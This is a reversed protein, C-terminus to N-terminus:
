ENAADGHLAALAGADDIHLPLALMGKWQFTDRRHSFLANWYAAQRAVVHPPANLDIFFTDCSFNERNRDRDFIGGAGQEAVFGGWAKLDAELGHPRYALTVVDIDNPQRGVSEVDETFSGDLWQFGAVFGYQRLEARFEFLGQLLARRHDSISFREVVEAASCEYPSSLPLQGGPTEGIFPPLVGNLNFSPILIRERIVGLAGNPM